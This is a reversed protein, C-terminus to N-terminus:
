QMPANYIAQQVWASIEADSEGQRPPKELATRARRLLSGLTPRDAPDHCLCTAVNWRLVYDVSSFEPTLLWRGYTAVVKGGGIDIRGARPPKSPWSRSIVSGMTLGIAWVNTHPGYNGAIPEDCVNAGNRECPLFEWDEAFQEPAYYGDKGHRRRNLYYEDRKQLKMEEALGFDGLKLRPIRSHDKDKPDLDGILVNQPDIDWHVYRKMRWRYKEDPIGEDLNSDPNKNRSPHFKRPPYAMAMCQKILCLWFAWLVRHPIPRRQESAKVILSYLDGSEMLETILFDPENDGPRANGYQFPVNWRTKKKALEAPTLDARRKRRALFAATPKEVTEDGSSEYEDSSDDDPLPVAVPTREPYGIGSRPIAQLMHAARAFKRQMKLERRLGPNAWSTTSFKVAINRPRQPMDMGIYKYHACVGFGGFGLTKKFVYGGPKQYFFNKVQQIRRYANRVITPQPVQRLADIDTKPMRHLPIRQVPQGMYVPYRGPADGRERRRMPLRMTKWSPYDDLRFPQISPNCNRYHIYEVLRQRFGREFAQDRALQAYPVFPQANPDM